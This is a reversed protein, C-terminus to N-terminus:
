VPLNCSGFGSANLITVSPPSGRTQGLFRSIAPGPLGAAALHQGCARRLDNPAVSNAVGARKAVGGMLMWLGQRSLRQGRRNVLVAGTAPHLRPRGRPELWRSLSEELAPVAPLVREHAGDRDVTVVTCGGTIDVVDLSIAESVKLGAFYLLGIAAADRRRDVGDGATAAILRAITEADLDPEARESVPKPLGKLEPRVTGTEDLWRHFVRLAVVARAASSPARTARLHEVYAALEADPHQERWRAYASADRAYAAVTNRARGEGALWDAFRDALDALRKTHRSTRGVWLM